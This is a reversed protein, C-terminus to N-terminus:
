TSEEEEWYNKFNKYTTDIAPNKPHVKTQLTVSAGTAPNDLTLQLQVESSSYSVAFASVNEAMTTTRSPSAKVKELTRAGANRQFTISESAVDQGTAHVRTFTISSATTGTITNADRIDRCMREMALRGEELLAKQDKTMTYVRMSDSVFHITIASVVSLIVIVALIEILTFGRELESNAQRGSLCPTRLESNSTLGYNHPCEGQKTM